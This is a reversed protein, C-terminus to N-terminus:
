QLKEANRANFVKYDVIGKHGFVVRWDARFDTIKNNEKRWQERSKERGWFWQIYKIMQTSDQKFHTNMFIGCQNKALIFQKGNCEAPEVGYVTEHCMCHLAVMHAQTAASFDNARIMVEIEHKFKALKSQKVLPHRM